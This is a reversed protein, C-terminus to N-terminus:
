ALHLGARRILELLNGKRAVLHAYNMAEGKPGVETEYYLNMLSGPEPAWATVQYLQIQVGDTGLVPRALVAQQDALVHEPQKCYVCRGAAIHHTTPYLEDPCTWHSVSDPEAVVPRTNRLRVGM